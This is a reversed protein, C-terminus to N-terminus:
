CFGHDARGPGTWCSTSHPWRADVEIVQGQERQGAGGKSSSSSSDGGGGRVTAMWDHVAQSPTKKDPFTIGMFDKDRCIEEHQLCGTLGAGNQPQSHLIGLVTGKFADRYSQLAQLQTANCAGRSAVVAAAGLGFDRTDLSDGHETTGAATHTAAAAPAVPSCGLQLIAGLHFTDYLSNMVFFPVSTIHPLVYNPFHCHWQEDASPYAKLCSLPTNGTGNWAAFGANLSARWAHVGNTNPLDLFFGADPVAFLKTSPSLRTRFYPAHLYTTLGGASTGSMVVETADGMGEKLLWDEILADLVRKGRYYITGKATKVPNARESTYSTGDCYEVFISTWNQLPNGTENNLLGYFGESPNHSADTGTAPQPGWHKSSGLWGQSRGYCSEDSM